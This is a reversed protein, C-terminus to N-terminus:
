KLFSQESPKHQSALEDQRAMSARPVHLLTIALDRAIVLFPISNFDINFCDERSNTLLTPETISFFARTVM